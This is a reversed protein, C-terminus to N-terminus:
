MKEFQCTIILYTITTSVINRSNLAAMFFIFDLNHTGNLNQATIFKSVTESIEQAQKTTRHGANCIIMVCLLFMALASAHYIFLVSPLIRDM